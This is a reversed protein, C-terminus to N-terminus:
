AAGALALMAGVLGGLIVRPLRLQWLIAADREGLGSEVAVLPLRDALEALVGGTSLRVPGVLVALLAAGALCACAALLM